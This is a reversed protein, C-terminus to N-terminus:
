KAEMEMLPREATGYFRLFRGQQKWGRTDGLAKMFAGEVTERGPLCARRTSALAAFEIRDGTQRYQGFFRNCGNSGTVRGEQALRLHAPEPEARAEAPIERGDLRVLRWTTDM